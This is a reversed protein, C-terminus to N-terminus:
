QVVGANKPAAVQPMRRFVKKAASKCKSAGNSAKCETGGWRGECWGDSYTGSKGKNPGSTVTCKKGSNDSSSNPSTPAANTQSSIILVSSILLATLKKM